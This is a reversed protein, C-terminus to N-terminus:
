RSIRDSLAKGFFPIESVFAEMRSPQKTADPPPAEPIAGPPVPRVPDVQPAPRAAVSAPPPSAPAALPAAPLAPPPTTEGLPQPTGISSPAAPPDTRKQHNALASRVSALWVADDSVPTEPEASASASAVAAARAPPQKAKSAPAPEAKALPAPEAKAAPATEVKSVAAQPPPPAAPAAAAPRAKDLALLTKFATIADPDGAGCTTEFTEVDRRVLARRIGADVNRDIMAVISARLNQCTVEASYNTKYMTYASGLGAPVAILAGLMQLVHFTRTFRSGVPAQPAQPVPRDDAGLEFPERKAVLM